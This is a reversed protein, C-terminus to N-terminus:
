VADVDVIEGGFTQLLAQMAPERLAADKLRRKRAEDPEGAAAATPACAAVPVPGATSAGGPAPGIGPAAFKM